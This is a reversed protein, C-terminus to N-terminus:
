FKVPQVAPTAAPQATGSAQQVKMRRDQNEFWGAVDRVRLTLDSVGGGATAIDAVAVLGCTDRAADGPQQLLGDGINQVCVDAAQPAPAGAPDFVWALVRGQDDDGAAHPAGYKGTLSQEIQAVSPRAGDPFQMRRVIFDSAASAADGGFWIETRDTRGGDDALTAVIRADGGNAPDSLTEFRANPAFALVAERAADRSAGLRVGSVDFAAPAARAGSTTLVVRQETTATARSGDPRTLSATKTEVATVSQQPAQQQPMTQPLPQATAQPQLAVVQQVGPMAAQAMPPQAPAAQQAPQMMVIPAQPQPAVVNVEIRQSEVRAPAQPPAAPVTAPVPPPARYAQQADMEQVARRAEALLAYTPLGSVPLGRASQFEVIARRTAPGYAGDPTGASFGYAAGYRNLMQQLDVMDARSLNHVPARYAPERYVPRPAPEREMYIIEREPPPPAPQAPRTIASGIVSGVVGGLAGGIFANGGSGAQATGSFLILCLSGTLATGISFRNM